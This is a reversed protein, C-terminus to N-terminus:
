PMLMRLPKMPRAPLQRHRDFPNRSPMVSIMRGRLMLWAQAENVHLVDKVFPNLSTAVTTVTAVQEKNPRRHYLRRHFAVPM